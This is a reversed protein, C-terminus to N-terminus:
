NLRQQNANSGLGKMAELARESLISVLDTRAFRGIKVEQSCKLTKLELFWGFGTEECEM